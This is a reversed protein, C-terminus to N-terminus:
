ALRAATVSWARPLGRLIEHWTAGLDASFFVDGCSTAFALGLPDRGDSAMGQRYITYWASAPLGNAQREWTAGGDSTRYVAPKGGVSTRPWVTGGDMPVVWCMDPNRPHCTMPFGIDRIDRPMNDGIRTWRQKAASPNWDLRYIGCHNQHYWRDPKAPHIVVDHPDHGTEHEEGPPLPPAFDMAVGLNVPAWTAGDDRSVFIGGGSNGVLITAPETPHVQVSHCKAGDPTMMSFDYSWKRLVPLDNFGDVGYWTEGDDDSRFLGIGSTGAYWRGPTSAHGPAFCFVHQVARGKRRPDDADLASNAYEEATKFKPPRAVEKWTKGGDTSRHVTPGLHGTSVAALLTGSGRPDQVIVHVECGFFWPADARWDTPGAGTRRLPWAGKKTGIIWSNADKPAIPQTM